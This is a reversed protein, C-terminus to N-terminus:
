SRPTKHDVQLYFPRDLERDLERDSGACAMGNEEIQIDVLQARSLTPRPVEIIRQQKTKSGLGRRWATRRRM